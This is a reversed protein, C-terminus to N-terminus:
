ALENQARLSALLEPWRFPTRAIASGFISRAARAAMAAAKNIMPKIDSLQLNKAALARALRTMIATPMLAPTPASEIRKSLTRQLHEVIAIRIRKGQEGVRRPRRTPRFQTKPVCLTLNASSKSRFQCDGRFRRPSEYSALIRFM